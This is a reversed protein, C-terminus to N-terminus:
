ASCIRVLIAGFAFHWRTSTSATHTTQKQWEPSFHYQQLLALTLSAITQLRQIRTTFWPLLLGTASTWQSPDAGQTEKLAEDIVV